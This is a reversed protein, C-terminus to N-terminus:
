MHEVHILKQHDFCKAIRVLISSLKSAAARWDYMYIPSVCSCVLSPLDGITCYDNEHLINVNAM